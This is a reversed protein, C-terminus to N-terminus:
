PAAQHKHQKVLRRFQMLKEFRKFGVIRRVELLFAFRENGLATRAAELRQYQAKAAAEDLDPSELLSELDFQAVEVKGKLQIMNRRATRFADELADIEEKTLGLRQIVRENHWWRGALLEQAHAASHWGILLLGLVLLCACTRQYDHRAVKM